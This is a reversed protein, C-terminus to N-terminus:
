SLLNFHGSFEIKEFAATMNPMEGAMMRAEMLKAAKKANELNDWEVLDIFLQPDDASQFNQYLGSGKFGTVCQRMEPLGNQLFQEVQDSKIRYAVVEKIPKTKSM